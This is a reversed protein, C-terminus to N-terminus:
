RDGRFLPSAIERDGGNLLPSIEHDGGGVSQYFLGYHSLENYLLM